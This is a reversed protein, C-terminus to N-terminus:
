HYPARTSIHRLFIVLSATRASKASAVMEECASEAFSGGKGADAHGVLHNHQLAFPLEMNIFPSSTSFVYM